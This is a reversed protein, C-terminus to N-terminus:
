MSETASQEGTVMEFALGEDEEDELTMSNMAKMINSTSAMEFASQHYHIFSFFLSVSGKVFSVKFIDLIYSYVCIFLHVYGINHFFFSSM